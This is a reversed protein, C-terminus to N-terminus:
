SRYVSGQVIMDRTVLWKNDEPILEELGPVARFRHRNCTQGDKGIPGCDQECGNCGDKASVLYYAYGGICNLPQTRDGEIFLNVDDTEVCGFSADIDNPM